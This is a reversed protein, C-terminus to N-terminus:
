VTVIWGLAAVKLVIEPSATPPKIRKLSASRTVISPRLPPLPENRFKVLVLLVVLVPVTKVNMLPALLLVMRLVFMVAAALEVFPATRNLVDVPVVPLLLLTISLQVM